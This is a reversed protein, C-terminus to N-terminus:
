LEPRLTDIQFASELFIEGNKKASWENGGATLDKLLQGSFAIM